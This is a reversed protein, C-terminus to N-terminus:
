VRGFIKENWIVSTGQSTSENHLGLVPFNEDTIELPTNRRGVAHITLGATRGRQQGAPAIITTSGSGSPLSPFESPSLTPSESRSAPHESGGVAGEEPPHGMECYGRSKGRRAADQRVRPKLTFELELTRAQKAAAKGM